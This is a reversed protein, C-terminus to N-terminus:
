PELRAYPGVVAGTFHLGGGAAQVSIALADADPVLTKWEGARVSYAATLIKEDASLRLTLNKADPLAATAVIEPAKGNSKELFLSIGDATRKVGLYYYHTENQLAVIGASAGATTSVDVSVSADFRA